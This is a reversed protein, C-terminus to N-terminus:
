PKKKAPKKRVPRRLAGGRGREATGPKTGAKRIVTFAERITVLDCNPSEIILPYQAPPVDESINMIVKLKDDGVLVTEVIEIGAADTTAKTGEVFYKGLILVEGSSGTEHTDSKVDDIVM